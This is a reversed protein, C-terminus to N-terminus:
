RADGAPFRSTLPPPFTAHAHKTVVAARARQLLVLGLVRFPQGEVELRMFMRARVFRAFRLRWATRLLLWPLPLSLAKGLFRKEALAESSYLKYRAGWKM